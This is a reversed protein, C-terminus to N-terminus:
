IVLLFWLGLVRDKETTRCMCGLLKVSFVEALLRSGPCYKASLCVDVLNYLGKM